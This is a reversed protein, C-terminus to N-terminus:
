VPNFASVADGLAVFREPWRDLREYHRWRNETRQYAFIPSLPKAHRIAKGVVPSALSDAFALFGKEDTPPYDRAAGSLTIMWRGNEIPIIVGGRPLAPPQPLVGVVKWDHIFDAGPQFMRTAYGLFSNIVTEEPRAYGLEALWDPARSSRGSADVVLDAQMEETKQNAAAQGRRRLRVGTVTRGSDEALLGTADHEECFRVRPHAALRRRVHWDLFPRSSSTSNLDSRTKPWLGASTYWFLDQGWNVLPAGAATMEAQVGPFMEELIRAGRVLLIHPHKDQPVGKRSEPGDSLRDRELITVSDFHDALVRGAVLGAMSGGIVIAHKHSAM